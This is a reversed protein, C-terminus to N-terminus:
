VPLHWWFMRHQRCMTRSAFLCRRSAFSFKMLFYFFSNTFYAKLGSRLFFDNKSFVKRCASTHAQAIMHTNTLMSTRMAVIKKKTVPEPLAEVTLKKKKSITKIRHGVFFSIKAFTMRVSDWVRVLFGM